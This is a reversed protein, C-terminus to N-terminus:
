APAAGGASRSLRWLSVEWGLVLGELRKLRKLLDESFAKEKPKLILVLNGEGDLGVYILRMTFGLLKGASM